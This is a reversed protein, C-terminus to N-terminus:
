TTIDGTGGGPAEIGLKRSWFGDNKICFEDNKFSDFDMIKSPINMVQIMVRWRLVWARRIQLYLSRGTVLKAKTGTYECLM